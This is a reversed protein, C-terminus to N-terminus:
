KNALSALTSMLKHAFPGEGTQFILPRATVAQRGVSVGDAHPVLTAIKGFPLQFSKARGVFYLNKTTLMLLGSDVPILGARHDELLNTHNFQWVPHEGRKLVVPHDTPLELARPPLGKALATFVKAKAVELLIGNANLEDQSLGFRVQLTALGRDEDGSLQGDKVCERAAAEWAGIQVQRMEEDSLTGANVFATVITEVVDVSARGQAVDLFNANVVEAAIAAAQARAAREQEAQREAAARLMAEYRAQEAAREACDPHESKFWGAPRKCYRCEAM